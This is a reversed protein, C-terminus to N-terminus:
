QQWGFTTEGGFQGAVSLLIRLGDSRMRLRRLAGIRDVFGVQFLLM